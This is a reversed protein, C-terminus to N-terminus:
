EGKDIKQPYCLSDPEVGVRGCTTCVYDVNELKQACMHWPEHFAHGCYNCQVGEEIPVPNCLHSGSVQTKGCTNCVYLHEAGAM